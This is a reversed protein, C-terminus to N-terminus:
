QSASDLHSRLDVLAAARWGGRMGEYASRQGPDDPDFGSHSVFLRTGRGEPVLSWTVETDLSGNRWSYRLTREPVIELVECHTTGWRGTDFTFRHGVTPLFDNPMLWRGLEDQSTLAHWVVEPRHPLYEDVEITLANM